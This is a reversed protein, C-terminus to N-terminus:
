YFAYVMRVEGHSAQLRRLEDLFYRFEDAFDFERDIAVYKTNDAIEYPRAYVGPARPPRQKWDTDLLDWRDPLARGDWTRFFVIPIGVTRTMRPPTASLIEDVHLWRLDPSGMCVKMYGVHGDRLRAQLLRKSPAHIDVRTVPHFTGGDVLEFDAPAGRQAALPELDFSGPRGGGAGLWEFLAQDGDEDYDSPVDVWHAGDKKQFVATIYRDV